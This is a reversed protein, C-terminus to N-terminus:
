ILSCINFRILLRIRRSCRCGASAQNPCPRTLSKAASSDNWYNHNLVGGPRTNVLYVVRGTMKPLPLFFYVLAGASAALLVFVFVLLSYRKVARVLSSLGIPTSAPKVRNPDVNPPINSAAM